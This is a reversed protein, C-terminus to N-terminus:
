ERNFIKDTWKDKKKIEILIQNIDEGSPNWQQYVNNQYIRLEFSLKLPDLKYEYCFIAAYILLQRVDAVTVGTKLDHIRLFKTRNDYVVSDITGFCNDSYKVPLEPTMGFDIADNVYIALTDDGALKRRLKICSAAFEHLETGKQAALASEVRQFYRDEDDGLWHYKSPSMIAHKGELEPHSNYTFRGRM